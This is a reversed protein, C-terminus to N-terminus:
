PSINEKKEVGCLLCIWKGLIGVVKGGVLFLIPYLFERLRLSDMLIKISNKYGLERACDWDLIRTSLIPCSKLVKYRGKQKKTQLSSFIIDQPGRKAKVKIKSGMKTVAKLPERIVAVISPPGFLTDLIYEFGM